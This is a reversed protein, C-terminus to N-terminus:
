YNRQYQIAMVATTQDRGSSKSSAAATSDTGSNIMSESYAAHKLSEAKTAANVIMMKCSAIDNVSEISQQWWTNIKSLV